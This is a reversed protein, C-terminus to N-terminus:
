SPPRYVWYSLPAGPCGYCLVGDDDVTIGEAVMAFVAGAGVLSAFRFLAYEQDNAEIRPELVGGRVPRWGGGDVDLIAAQGCFWTFVVDDAVVSDPYCESFEMPMEVPESWANTAPDYEQAHVEYDWAILRGGAFVASTAQPSLDSPPMTRWTDLVPDYAAGVSAETEAVNRDNLLSGFVIVEDGTWAASVLNLGIPADAIQRWRDADPDYAAGEHATESDVEGGGFVIMESGTWVVATQRYGPDNPAPPLERWTNLTPDFSLGAPYFLVQAGTWVSPFPSSERHVPLM